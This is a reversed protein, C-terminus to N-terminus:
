PQGTLRETMRKVARMQRGSREAYSRDDYSWWDWCGNPNSFTTAAQPYLVLIRNTDAWGNYGANRMYADGVFDANQKCGHFAVHLRCEAGDGECGPPVYLFGTAAMGHSRADPLFEDQSFEVFRGAPTNGNKPNLAGYIWGLLEGAADLGCNNIYPSGLVSCQNGFFDTPMAHEASRHTRYRINEPPVYFRYYDQLDNMVATPVVTDWRGSFLWIRHGALNSTADIRDGAANRNTIDALSSVNTGGPSVGCWPLGTTCSCVTVATGLNGRACFYPGGAVIGAGMVSASFAVEFQVAMYGGSSLGSVSLQGARMPPLSGPEAQGPLVASCVFVALLALLRLLASIIM